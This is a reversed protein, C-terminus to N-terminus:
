KLCELMPNYANQSVIKNAFLLHHVTAGPTLVDKATSM